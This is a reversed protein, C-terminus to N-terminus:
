VRNMEVTEHEDHAGPALLLNREVREGSLSFEYLPYRVPELSHDPHYIMGGGAPIGIGRQFDGASRLSSKLSEWGTREEHVGIIFPVLMLTQFLNPAAADQARGYLGMQVAGASSGILLAGEYYRRTIAEKLGTKEFVRWGREVSGGALLILDARDLFLADDEDFSSRIMRRRNIGVNAMAAEFLSYFVPEDGNSAGIYAASPAESELAERVRSLFLGGEQKWWLLQSDAFLYIPQLPLNM